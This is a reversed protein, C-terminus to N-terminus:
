DQLDQRSKSVNRRRAMMVDVTARWHAKDPAVNGENLRDLLALVQLHSGEILNNAVSRNPLNQQLDWHFAHILRDICGMREQTSRAAPYAAVYAQFEPLANAGILDRHRWSLHYEQRSVQWGCEPTPCEVTEPEAAGWAGMDFVTRCRPCEVRHQSVQVISQCRLWLSFGVNEVLSEDVTGAADNQYLQWIRARTVKPAWRIKEM